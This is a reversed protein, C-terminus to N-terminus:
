LNLLPVCRVLDKYCELCYPISDTEFEFIHFKIGILMSDAFELLMKFTLYFFYTGLYQRLENILYKSLVM